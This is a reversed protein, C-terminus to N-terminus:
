GREENSFKNISPKQYSKQFKKYLIISPAFLFPNSKKLIKKQQRIAGALVELVTNLFLPDLEYRLTMGTKLSMM